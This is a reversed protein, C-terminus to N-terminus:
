GKSRNDEGEEGRSIRVPDYTARGSNSEIGLHVRFPVTSESNVAIEAFPNQEQKTETRSPAAGLSTCNNIERTSAVAM